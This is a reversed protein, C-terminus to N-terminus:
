AVTLQELLEIVAQGIRAAKADDVESPAFAPLFRGIGGPDENVLCRIVAHGVEAATTDDIDATRASM